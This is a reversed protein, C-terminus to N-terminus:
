ATTQRLKGKGYLLEEIDEFSRPRVNYIMKDHVCVCMCKRVEKGQLSLFWKYCGLQWALYEPKFRGSKIDLIDYVGDQEVLLDIASAYHKLDSVLVESRLVAATGKIYKLELASKVWRAGPHVCTMSGTDIWEQVWKHINSGEDTRGEIIGTAKSYDLGLKEGIKRTVGEFKIGNLSYEHLAENFSLGPALSLRGHGVSLM